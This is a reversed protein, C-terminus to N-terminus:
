AVVTKIADQIKAWREDDMKAGVVEVVNGALISGIKGCKDFSLGQSMGYLFGSAYLDGAGTTDICDAQIADVKYEAGFAKILSGNKGVKVVAIDAHKAIEHLADEASLGTYAHAEEENAFVIDVYEAVIEHLFDRMAEVVNFSALDISVKCGAEKALKLARRILDKNFVLYGEIHFYDYGGFMDAKLDEAFLECAAGLYTCMTREGDPSVLVICQGSLLDSSMLHTRVGNAISDSKFFEGVADDGIKGVFGARIGLKAIGSITNSASGGTVMYSELDNVRDTIESLTENEILQMSGKPTNLEQLLSDNEIFTLVDVIANGMGLVKKMYKESLIKVFINCIEFSRMVKADCNLPFM